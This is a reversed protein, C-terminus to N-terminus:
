LAPSYSSELLSSHLPSSATITNIDCELSRHRDETVFLTAERFSQDSDDSREKKEEENEQGQQINTNTSCASTVPTSLGDM